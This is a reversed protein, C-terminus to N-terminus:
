KKLKSVAPNSGAHVKEHPLKLARTENSKSEDGNHKEKKM